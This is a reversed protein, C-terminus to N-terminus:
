DATSPMHTMQDFFAQAYCHNDGGTDDDYCGFGPPCTHPSDCRLQPITPYVTQEQPSLCYAPKM